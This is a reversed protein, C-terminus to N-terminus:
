ATAYMGHTQGYLISANFCATPRAFPWTILSVYQNSPAFHSLQLLSLSLPFSPPPPRLPPTVSPHWTEAGIGIANVVRQMGLSSVDRAVMTMKIAVQCNQAHDEAAWVLGDNGRKLLNFNRYRDPVEGHCWDCPDTM